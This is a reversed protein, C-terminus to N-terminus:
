FIEEYMEQNSDFSGCWGSKCLIFNDVFEIDLLQGMQRLSIAVNIDDASPEIVNDTHNHYLYFRKAGILLLFVAIERHYVSAGKYDGNSVHFIGLPVGNYNTALVYVEERDIEDIHLCWRIISLLEDDAYEEKSVNFEKVARLEPTGDEKQFIDYQFM